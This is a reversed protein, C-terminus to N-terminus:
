YVTRAIKQKCSCMGAHICVCTGSLLRAAGRAVRSAVSLGHCQRTTRTTSTSWSCMRSGTARGFHTSSLRIPCSHRGAGARSPRRMTGWRLRSSRRTDRAERLTQGAYVLVLVRVFRFCAGPNCWYGSPPEFGLGACAGGVGTVTQAHMHSKMKDRKVSQNPPLMGCACARVCAHACAHARTGYYCYGDVSSCPGEASRNPLHVTIDAAPPFTKPPAWKAPAYWGAPFLQYRTRPANSTQGFALDLTSDLAGNSQIAMLGDHVSRASAM